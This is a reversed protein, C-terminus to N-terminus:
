LKVILVPIPPHNPRNLYESLIVLYKKPDLERLFGMVRDREEFGSDGGSYICVTMLGQKKLLKLGKDIARISSDAKTAKEHDGGPLYGLNFTICSVSDEKAYHDMQEHSQLVLEYNKPCGTKELRERTHELAMEQVDFAVVRGQEGALQSLLATDYGNGMTADICLDGMEVQERIFRHVWQTIQYNKMTKETRNKECERFENYWLGGAAAVM